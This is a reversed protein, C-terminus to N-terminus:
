QQPANMMGGGMGKGFGPGFGGRGMGGMRGPGVYQDVGAQEAKEQMTTRLDFLEGTVKAVAQPDPDESRMLAQKEARKMAMEKHLPQTDKFFQKIKDKTAQDLQQFMQGQMQGQMQPCDGYGGYGGYGGHGRGRGWDASAVTAMTLGTILALAIIKKKM